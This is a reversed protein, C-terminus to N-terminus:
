EFGKLKVIERPLCVEYPEWGIWEGSIYGDYGASKLLKIASEHDVAGEGIAKFEISNGNLIGDHIHVHKIRPKLIEFSEGVTAYKQMVPHMIDWNVGIYPRNVQEMIDAATRPDCWSDHTELCVNIKATSAYGSLQTLAGAILDFSKARESENPIGGGFVRVSRAGVEAALEVARKATDINEHWTDAAAFQCSTAICCINIKAEAAKKQIEKLYQREAGLEAGHRHGADIRPEIGDYGYMNAISLFKEIGAEPCSFSMFAYKMIM